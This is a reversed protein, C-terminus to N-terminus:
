ARVQGQQQGSIKAAAPRERAIQQQQLWAALARWVM